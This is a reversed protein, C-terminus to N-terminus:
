GTRISNHSGGYSNPVARGLAASREVLVEGHQKLKPDCLVQGVTVHVAGLAREYLRRAPSEAAMGTLVHEEVFQLPLRGLHYHLRLAARTVDIPRM